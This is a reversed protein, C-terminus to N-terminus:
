THMEYSLGDGGARHRRTLIIGGCIGGSERFFFDNKGDKVITIPNGDYWRFAGRLFKKLATKQPRPMKGISKMADSSFRLPATPNADMETVQVTKRILNSGCPIFIRNMEDGTLHFERITAKKELYGGSMFWCKWLFKSGVNRVSVINGCDEEMFVYQKSDHLFWRALNERSILMTPSKGMMADYLSLSVCFDDNRPAKVTVLMSNRANKM